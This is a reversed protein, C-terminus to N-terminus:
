LQSFVTFAPAPPRTSVLLMWSTALAPQPAGPLGTGVEQHLEHSPGATHSKKSGTSMEGEVMPKQPTHGSIEAKLLLQHALRAPLPSVFSLSGRTNRGGSVSRVKPQPQPNHTVTCGPTPIHPICGLAAALPASFPNGFPPPSAM